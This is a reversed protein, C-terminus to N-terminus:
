PNWCIAPTGGYNDAIHQFGYYSGGDGNIALDLSDIEFWYQAKWILEQAEKAKPEVVFKKYGLFGGVLLLVAAVIGTVLKKNKEFFLETRTYIEGIDLDKDEAPPNTKTAAM